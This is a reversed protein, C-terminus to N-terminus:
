LGVSKSSFNGATGSGVLLTGDELQTSNFRGWRDVQGAGLSGLCRAGSGGVMLETRNPPAELEVRGLAGLLEPRWSDARAKGQLWLLREPGLRSLREAHEVSMWREVWDSFGERTGGAEHGDRYFEVDDGYPEVGEIGASALGAPHAGFPVVSVSRVRSAPLGPLHNHRRIVEPEVLREVTVVVGETAALSGHVGEGYPPSILVNGFPDACPAHLFSIDPVLPRVEITGDGRVHAGENDAMSSGALGKVPLAPLRRAAAELRACYSLVSWHELSIDHESLARRAPASPAPSPYPELVLTTVLRKVLGESLLAVAPGATFLHLMTFGPDSGAFARLLEAMAAAPRNHTFAFHLAMGPRVAERVAAALPKVKDQGSPIQGFEDLWASHRSM